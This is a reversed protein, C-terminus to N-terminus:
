QNPYLAITCVDTGPLNFFNIGKQPHLVYYAPGAAYVVWVGGGGGGGFLGVALDGFLEVFIVM